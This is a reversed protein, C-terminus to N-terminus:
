LKIVKLTKSSQNGNKIRYYYIGQPLNSMDAEIIGKKINVPLSMVRNGIANYLEFRSNDGVESSLNYSIRIKNYAPNPYADSISINNKAEPHDIGTITSIVSVSLDDFYFGDGRVSGDSYFTFRLTIDKDTFDQLSIEEQVWEEQVGDYVPEEDELYYNGYSSYNGHLSIWNSSGEEKVKVQVYDYGKEIDWTAWFRLTAMVADALSITTDLTIYSDVDNNYNGYPSDALSYEPSHADQNTIGWLTSSWNDMTNGDDNFIVVETGFIRTVTDSIVFDGNDLSILYRFPTGEEIGADLTFGISETRTELLEMGNFQVPEGTEIIYDDLSEISVTFTETDYMGLRTIDFVAYNDTEDTIMPSVDTVEGYNGVLMAALMNQWMQDQCLRIIRSVPPWFGDSSNGVEPTAAWIADKVEQEGYMWDDSDGNVTYITSSAPGYIYNNELTMMAAYAMFLDNDPPLDTTYGWPTLLLASYSHYNLAIQFDHAICFDRVNKIEPESFASPGRYTQDDPYPSSGDNDIGWMYGYNRNPDVGFSGDGNDRRNKRWMGGGNPNTQENYAYGDPNIFPIFYLETNNVIRQIDEDTDYNELLYWMYFIMQQISMPERAHHVATYLVEPEDEDVNPNDSIKVWFLKRGDHTLTDDSISQRASILDPYAAAMDDLEAYAEELTYFGGMSGYEWNEPVTWDGADRDIELNKEAAARQEYFASVDDIQIEVPIGRNKLKNIEYDSLDTEYYVGKIVAGETVDIGSSALEKLETQRLDIKVRSYKTQALLSTSGTLMLFFLVTFFRKM